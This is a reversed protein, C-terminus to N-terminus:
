QKRIRLGSDGNVDVFPPPDHRELQGGVSVIEGNKIELWAGGPGTYRGDASAANEKIKSGKVVVDGSSSSSSDATYGRKLTINGFRVRGATVHVEGKTKSGYKGDPVLYLRKDTGQVLLRNKHRLRESVRARPVNIKGFNLSLNEAPVSGDGARPNPVQGTIVPRDPNGNSSKSSGDMAPVTVKRRGKDKSDPRQGAGYTPRMVREGPRKREGQKQQLVHGLEHTGRDSAEESSEQEDSSTDAVATVYPMGFVAIALIGAFRKNLRITNM